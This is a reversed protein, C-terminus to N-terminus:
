IDLSRKLADESWVWIVGIVWVVWFIWIVKHIHGFISIEKKSMPLSCGIGVWENIEIDKYTSKTTYKQCISVSLKNRPIVPWENGKTDVLYHVTRRLHKLCGHDYQMFDWQKTNFVLSISSVEYKKNPGYHDDDEEYPSVEQVDNEPGSM